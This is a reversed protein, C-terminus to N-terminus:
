KIRKLMDKGDEIDLMVGKSDMEDFKTPGQVDFLMKEEGELNLVEISEMRASLLVVSGERDEDALREQEAKKRAEEVDKITPLNNRHKAFALEVREKAEELRKEKSLM